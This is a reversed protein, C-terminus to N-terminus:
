ARVASDWGGSIALSSSSSTTASAASSRAHSRALWSVDGPTHSARAFFPPVVVVSVQCCATSSASQKPHISPCARLRSSCVENMRKVGRLGVRAREDPRRSRREAAGLAEPRDADDADLPDTM